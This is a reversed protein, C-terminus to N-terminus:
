VRGIGRSVLEALRGASARWTLFPMGTSTPAEGRAHCELWIRIASALDKESEAGFYSAHSGAVEKFVPLDRALVPLGHQAAEILPLGFGEGLSAAILCDAEVYLRQLCEDSISQLWILRQMNEPHKQLRDALENTHWGKKGVIVLNADVGDAWLKEFVDLVEVHGKRPELTGVMLFSIRRQMITAVTQWNDPLGSTPQSNDLDAGL